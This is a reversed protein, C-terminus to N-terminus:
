SFKGNESMGAKQTYGCDKNLCILEQKSGRGKLAMTTKCQPCKEKTPPYWSIFDCQPYNECGYFVRGKKSRREVLNGNDLPCTGPMQKLLPKTFKCDPFGPCALFKGFRGMKIVLLKGCQPCPEDTVEDAILIKGAKDEAEQLEKAFSDYFEELIELPSNQGEEISDLKEELERTFDVDVIDSFHDKLLDITVQGLETPVLRKEEEVVYGRKKITEIIAAYTSPRGIGLDELEKVLSAQSYRPPPQTFHQESFLQKLDTALGPTVLPLKYDLEKEQDPYLQLFGAFKLTSGSATFQAETSGIHVSVTDFVASAAQSSLFRLWILQYLKFQDRTLFPKLSEPTKEVYSPRIAEHADQVKKSSQYVRKEKPLFEKGLENQIFKEAQLAAQDSIRVSDTRMYTILGLSGEKGIEIGEYLEQAVRMTRSAAFNLRRWAEQQLTSTTFPPPPNRKREKKDVDLIKYDQGKLKQLLESTIDKNLLKPKEGQWKTLKAKLEGNTTAFLGEITWYEEKNFNAIEEERECILRVAVSQVRGASLGKKIKRWLLPSLKYGVIRDLIRRTQQADVLDMNVSRPKKTAEKVADKTIENFTIRISKKPDLDLIEALHWAIAEGERDPDTALFIRDAKKAQNKLKKLLEGKGRITIYKPTFGDKIDVGFQSKPLDRIHGMSAEITYNTGLFKKITKAKAPSEVIVLTKAM